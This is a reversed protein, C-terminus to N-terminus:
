QNNSPSEEGSLPQSYRGAVNMALRTRWPSFVSGIKDPFRPSTSRLPWASKRNGDSGLVAGGKIATPSTITAPAASPQSRQGVISAAVAHRRKLEALFDRSKM